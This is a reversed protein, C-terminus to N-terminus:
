QQPESRDERLLMDMGLGSVAGLILGGSLMLVLVLSASVWTPDFPPVAESVRISTVSLTWGITSLIIWLNANPVTEQLVRRQLLGTLIGGIAAAGEMGLWDAGSDSVAGFVDIMAFPITMGIAGTWVWSNSNPLHSKLISRQAIATGLGISLGVIFQVNGIGALDWVFLLVAMIGFGLLWGYFTVRTWRLLFARNMTSCEFHQRPVFFVPFTAPSRHEDSLGILLLCMPIERAAM